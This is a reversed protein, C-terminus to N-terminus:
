ELVELRVATANDPGGKALALDLVGRADPADLVAELAEDSGAAALVGDTLLLYLDGPYCMETLDTVLEAPLAPVGAGVAHTLQTRGSGDPLPVAHDVTLLKWLGDRRRYCRTDGVHLLLFAEASALLATCTTGAGVLEPDLRGIEELERRGDSLSQGLGATLEAATGDLAWRGVVAALRTAVELSARDGGQHGGLGDLVAALFPRSADSLIWEASAVDDRVTRTGLVAIDENRRRTPGCASAATASLARPASM